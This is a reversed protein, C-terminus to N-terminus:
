QISELNQIRFKASSTSRAQPMLLETTSYTSANASVTDLGGRQLPSKYCFINKFM